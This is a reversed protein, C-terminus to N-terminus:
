WFRWWPKKPPAPPAEPSTPAATSPPAPKAEKGGFARRAAEWRAEESLPPPSATPPASQTAGKTRLARGPDRVYTVDPVDELEEDAEEERGPFPRLEKGDSSLWVPGWSTCPVHEVPQVPQAEAFRVPLPVIGPRLAEPVRDITVPRAPAHAQVYPGAAWNEANHEYRYVPSKPDPAYPEEDSMGVAESIAEFAQPFGGLAREYDGLGVADEPIAGAEGTDFVALRGDLDVGFWATDMSHAAPVARRDIPSM